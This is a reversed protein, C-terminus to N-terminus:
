EKLQKVWKSITSYGVGMAKAADEHTYGNDVVLQATELRFEPSYNPRKKKTM